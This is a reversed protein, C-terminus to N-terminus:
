MKCTVYWFTLDKNKLFTACLTTQSVTKNVVSVGAREACRYIWVENISLFVNLPSNVIRASRFTHIHVPLRRSYTHVGPKPQDLAHVTKTKIWRTCSLLHASGCRWEFGRGVWQWVCEASALKQPVFSVQTPHLIVFRVLMKWEVQTLMTVLLWTCYCKLSILWDKPQSIFLVVQCWSCVHVLFLFIHVEASKSQTVSLTRLRHGWDPSLLLVEVGTSSM